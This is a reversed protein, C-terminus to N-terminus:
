QGRICRGHEIQVEGSVLKPLLADRVSALVRSELRIALRRDLLTQM